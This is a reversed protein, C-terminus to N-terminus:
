QRPSPPHTSLDRDWENFASGATEAAERQGFELVVGDITAGKVTLGAREAEKVARALSSRRVRWKPRARASAAIWATLRDEASFISWEDEGVRHWGLCDLDERTLADFEIM